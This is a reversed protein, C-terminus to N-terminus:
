DCESFDYGITDRRLIDHSSRWNPLFTDMLQYFRRNHRRELLHVLEHVVVCELCEIPRKALELNLWIRKRIINCSGWKSKMRKIGWFSVRVGIKDQWLDVLEAIRAVLFSRYWSNLIEMRHAATTDPKVTLVLTSEDRVCMGQEGVGEIVELQYHKGFLYHTEGQVVALPMRVPQKKFSSRKEEIWSLRSRIMAVIYDDAVTLPASVRVEGEPPRVSVYLNKIAKRM